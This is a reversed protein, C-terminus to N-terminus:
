IQTRLFFGVAPGVAAALRLRNKGSMFAVLGISTRTQSSSVHKSCIKHEYLNLLLWDRLMVIIVLAVRYKDEDTVLICSCLM